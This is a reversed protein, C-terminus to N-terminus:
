GREVLNALVNPVEADAVVIRGFGLGVQSALSRVYDNYRSLPDKAPPKDATAAAAPPHSGGEQMERMM